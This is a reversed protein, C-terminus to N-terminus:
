VFTSISLKIGFDALPCLESVSWGSGTKQTQSVQSKHPRKLSWKWFYKIVLIGCEIRRERMRGVQKRM